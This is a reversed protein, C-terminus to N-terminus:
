LIMKCLLIQIIIKLYFYKNLELNTDLPQDTRLQLYKLIHIDNYNFAM